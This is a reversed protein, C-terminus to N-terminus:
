SLKLEYITFELWHTLFSAYVKQFKFYSKKWIDVTM